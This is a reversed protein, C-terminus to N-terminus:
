LFNNYWLKVWNIEPCGNTGSDDCNDSNNNNDNNDDSDDSDDSDNINLSGCLQKSGIESKWKKRSITM